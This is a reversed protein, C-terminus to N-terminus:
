AHQQTNISSWLICSQTWQCTELFAEGLSALCAGRRIHVQGPAATNIGLLCNSPFPEQQDNRTSQSSRAAKGVSLNWSVHTLMRHLWLRLGSCLSHAWESCNFGHLQDMSNDDWWWWGTTSTSCCLVNKMWDSFSLYIWLLSLQKQM